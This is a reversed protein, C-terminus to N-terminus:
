PVYENFPIATIVSLRFLFKVCVNKGVIFMDPSDVILNSMRAERVPLLILTPICSLPPVVVSVVGLTACTSVHCVTVQSMDPTALASLSVISPIIMVM